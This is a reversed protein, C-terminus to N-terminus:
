KRVRRLVMVVTGLMVLALMLTWFIGIQISLASFGVAPMLGIRVVGKLFENKAIVQAVPPSTRYYFDVFVKGARNTLLFLDRFDRLIKVYPDFYSGFAATAIFCGSGGGGGGGDTPAAVPVGAAGPDVIVAKGAVIETSYDTFADDDTITLVGKGATVVFRTNASLLTGNSDHTGTSDVSLWGKAANYKYWVANGPLDSPTYITVAVPQGPNVNAIRFGVAGYALSVGAPPPTNNFGPDSPTASIVEM